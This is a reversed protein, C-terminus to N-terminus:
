DPAAKVHSETFLLIQGSAACAGANYCEHLSGHDVHILQDHPALKQAVIAELDPERGDIIVVVEYSARPSTQRQTWSQIAELAHGRHDALPVVVSLRPPASAKTM